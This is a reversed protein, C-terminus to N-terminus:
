WDREARDTWDVKENAIGSAELLKPEHRKVFQDRTGNFLLCRAITEAQQESDAEVKVRITIVYKM